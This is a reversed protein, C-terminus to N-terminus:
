FQRVGLNRQASDAMQQQRVLGQMQLLRAAGENAISSQNVGRGYLNALLQSSQQDFAQANAAQEAASIQELAQATQPDLQLLQANAPTQGQALALANALQAGFLDQAGGTIGQLLQNQGQGAQPISPRNTAVTQVQGASPDRGDLSRRLTTQFGEPDIFTVEAANQSLIQSGPPVGQIPGFFELAAQQFAEPPIQVNRGPFRKSLFDQFPSLNNVAMAIRGGDASDTPPMSSIQPM